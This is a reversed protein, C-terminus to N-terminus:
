TLRLRDIGILRNYVFYLLLTMVLLMAGLASGMGWNVTSNTFLAIYTSVLQDTPGGVLAPTIYYGLCLIFTLLCGAAVGPMTQPLYVRIFAYFSSAGLSRAARMHSPSIGKMVSYIPLLTFPLQIHTMAAITGFRTFILQLRESVLGTAMLVDNIPGHTQLLVVWATTRVLLSTWFPLLVLILLLNGTRAPLTAMLYAAPYGMVLTLFTVLLSIYLTRAFVAKYVAEDESVPVIRDDADYELDVASVYYFPTYRQSARKVVAWAARDSWLPAEAILAEKYPGTELEIAFRASKVIESRMGPLEYNLRRGILAAKKAKQAEALDAVLAAFTAEDPLERGDWRKIEASTRPMLRSIDPDYVSQFLMVGIPIVFSVMIFAFLPLVLAVAKLMRAREVRRLRAKLAVGGEVVAVAPLTASVM